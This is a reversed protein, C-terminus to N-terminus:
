YIVNREHNIHGPLAADSHFDAAHAQFHKLLVKRVRLGTPPPDHRELAHASIRCAAGHPM